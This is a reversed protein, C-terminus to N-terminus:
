AMGPLSDSDLLEEVRHPLSYSSRADVPNDTQGRVVNFTGRQTEWLHAFALIVGHRLKPPTDIYGAVYTVKINQVGPVFTGFGLSSLMANNTLRILWQQSADLAYSTAPLLVGAETVSTISIALPNRLKIYTQGGDYLEDTFTQRGIVLGTHGEVLDNAVDLFWRIEEDDTTDTLDYNIHRKVDALSVAGLKSFDRVGFEDPYSGPNAGTAQWKVAHRGVMTTTFNCTYKGTAGHVVTGTATSGDPLYITCTVATADAAAGTTDTNTFALPAIDGLDYQM